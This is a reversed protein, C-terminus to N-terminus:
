SFFFFAQVPLFDLGVVVEVFVLWRKMPASFPGAAGKYSSGFELDSGPGLVERPLTPTRTQGLPHAFTHTATGRSWQSNIGNQHFVCEQSVDSFEYLSGRLVLPLMTSHTLQSNQSQLPTGPQSGVALFSVVGKSTRLASLRSRLASCLEATQLAPCEVVSFPTRALAPTLTM